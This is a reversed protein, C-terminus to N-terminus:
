GFLRKDSAAIRAAWSDRWSPDRATQGQFVTFLLCSRYHLFIDLEELWTAPVPRRRRYGEWFRSFSFERFGEPLDDGLDPRRGLMQLFSYLTTACDCLFWHFNAVDFDIIHLEPEGALPSGDPGPPVSAPDFLINWVHADNHVFGYEGKVKPKAALATRLNGWARRVAEDQCMGIFFDIEGEWSGIASFRPCQGTPDIEAGEAEWAAHLSGLLEGAATFYAGSRSCAEDQVTRGEVKLYSYALYRRGRAESADIRESFISGDPRPLPSVIRCGRAGLASVAELRQHARGIALDDDQSFDLIKLIRPSQGPGPSFEYVTGDSWDEGGGIKTLRDVSTGFDRALEARLAPPIHKM